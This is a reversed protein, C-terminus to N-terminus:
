PLTFPVLDLPGSGPSLPWWSVLDGGQYAALVLGTAALLCAVVVVVTAVGEPVTARVVTRSGRRLSTSGLGWWGLAGGVLAGLAMPLPHEPSLRALALSCLKTQQEESFAKVLQGGNGAICLEMRAPLQMRLFGDHWARELMEGALYFLFGIQVLLLSELYSIRGAARSQAMCRRLAQARSALLDDLLLM